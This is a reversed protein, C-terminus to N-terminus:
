TLRPPFCTLGGSQTGHIVMAAILLPKLKFRDVFGVGIVFLLPAAGPGLSSTLFATAFLVWPLLVLRGQALSMLREVLWDITGNENAIALLLTIGVMLIFMQGPFGAMIERSSYGLLFTGALFAVTFAVVGVNLDTLMPLAFIIVLGLILLVEVPMMM